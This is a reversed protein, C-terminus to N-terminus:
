SPVASWRWRTPRSSNAAPSSSPSSASTVAGAPKPATSRSRSRSTLRAALRGARRPVPHRPHSARRVLVAVRWFRARQALVPLDRAAAARARHRRRRAGCRCGRSCRAGLRHRVPRARRYTAAGAGCLASQGARGGAPHPCGGERPTAATSIPVEGVGFAYLMNFQGPAPTIRSSNVPELALTVMDAPERRRQVRRAAATPELPGATMLAGAKGTSTSCGCAPRGSATSLIAAFREDARVRPAPRDRVQRPAGCTSPSPVTVRRGGRRVGNTRRSSGRCGVVDGEGLTDIRSPVTRPCWSRVAVRGHRLLFFEDAATGQRAIADGVDFVVNRGCGVLLELYEADLGDFLPHERLVEDMARM